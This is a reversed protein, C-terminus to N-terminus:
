PSFFTHIKFNQHIILCIKYEKTIISEREQLSISIVVTKPVTLEPELGSKSVFEKKYPMYVSNLFGMM